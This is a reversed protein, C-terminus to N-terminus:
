GFLAVLWGAIGIWIVFGLLKGSRERSLGVWVCWCGKMHHFMSGRGHKEVNTSPPWDSIKSLWRAYENPMSRRELLGFADWFDDADKYGDLTGHRILYVPVEIMWVVFGIAAMLSCVIMAPIAFWLKPLPMM